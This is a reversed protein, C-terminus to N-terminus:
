DEEVEEEEPVQRFRRPRASLLGSPTDVEFRSSGAPRLPGARLGPTTPENHHQRPPRRAPTQSSTISSSISPSSVRQTQEYNDRPSHTNAAAPFETIHRSIAHTNRNQDDAHGASSPYLTNSVHRHRHAPIKCPKTARAELTNAPADLKHSPRITNPTATDDAISNITGEHAYNTSTRTSIGAMVRAVSSSCPSGILSPYREDPMTPQPTYRYCSSPPGYISDDAQTATLLTRGTVCSPPDGGLDRGGLALPRRTPAITGPAETQAFVPANPCSTALQTRGLTKGQIWECSLESSGRAM